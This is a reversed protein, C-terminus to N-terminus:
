GVGEGVQGGVQKGACESMGGMRWGALESLGGTGECARRYALGGGGLREGAWGGVWRYGGACGDLRAGMWGGVRGGARGHVRGGKRWGAWAGVWGGAWGGVHRVMFMRKVPTNVLVTGPIYVAYPQLLVRFAECRGQVAVQLATM